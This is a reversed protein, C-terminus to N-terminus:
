AGDEGQLVPLTERARDLWTRVLPARPPATLAAQVARVLSRPDAPDFGHLTVGTLAAIERTSPLDPVVIPVSTALYDWLKLPSTLHRGFVNDALPLLLAASRSLLDPVQPYPVPPRLRVNGPVEGLAAQEDPSGGILELPLPLQGAAQALAAVGKYARLSGVCRIVAEPPRPGRRREPSVANHAVVRAAPLAEGHAEEWMRMTGGCNTILGDLRPLLWRELALTRAPDEGAESALASDLEHAELVIRHRHGGGTARLLWRLRRKDRALVVGPAGAWWALAQARFWWGAAPAYTTPAMRLDLGEVPELGLTALPDAGEGRDALLTVTHGLRALAHCAHLVQIAQARTGPLRPRYLHLIRM